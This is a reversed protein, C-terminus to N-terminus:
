RSNIEEVPCLHLLVRDIQAQLNANLRINNSCEIADKWTALLEESTFNNTADLIAQRRDQNVLNESEPAQKLLAADRLISILLELFTIALDRNKFNGAMRFAEVEHRESISALADIVADREALFDGTALEEALAPRGGSIRALTMAADSDLNFQECLNQTLLEYSLPAFRIKQCRSDITPLIAQPVSTILIFLSFPFPEELVKLLSNAAEVKMRDAPDLVFVKKKGEYPQLAAEAIMDRCHDIKITAGEPEIVRYDPYVGSKMRQCSSCRGCFDDELEDCFIAMAFAEAMKRKGVHPPGHFLYAPHYAGQKVMRRLIRTLKEYGQFESFPM